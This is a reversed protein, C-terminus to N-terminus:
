VVESAALRRSRKMLGAVGDAIMAELGAPSGCVNWLLWLAGIYTVAGLAATALLTLALPIIATIQAFNPMAFFIVIAMVTASVLSRWPALLQQRIPLNVLDRVVTMCYFVTVSESIYRAFIVGMFGYKVAGIIVLPIKVCVELLNRKFFIQTRGFSMVLPGLPIAFLTPIMSISLWRLLPAAGLWQQGFMLRVAPHALLGEGVLIPLGLTVMATASTQYSQALRAPDDKLLSFASLMPRLVPSLLAMMPITATDNAATFLGLESKSTLKGLLLRDTQWNFAGIVQAATIWGLFGSFASLRALSLRPRYPALVYSTFTGAIPAVVTGAAIAWYSRTTFALSTALFFAILKGLFEMTFDPTFDLNRSFVALRPSVLGRAVPALSLVCVLPLLRLDGYFRAFPWSIGCVLVGLLLGRLLSLTFATDFHSPEIVELRVLAQSVPLELAAEIIYIVTMAIAVLGFDKPRLIHALVLMTGLDIVRSVLRAGVM